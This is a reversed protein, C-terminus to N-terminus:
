VCVMAMMTLQGIRQNALQQPRFYKNYKWISMTSSLKDDTFIRKMYVPRAKKQVEVTFLSTTGYTQFQSVHCTISKTPDMLEHLIKYNLLQKSLGKASIKRSNNTSVLTYLKPALYVGKRARFEEKFKGLTLNDLPINDNAFLADTEEMYEQYAYESQLICKKLGEDRNKWSFSTLVSLSDTDSM